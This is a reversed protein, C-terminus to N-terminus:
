PEFPDARVSGCGEELCATAQQFCEAHYPTRCRRCRVWAGSGSPTGGCLGCTVPGAEPLPEPAPVPESDGSGQTPVPDAPAPLATGKAASGVRHALAATTKLARVLLQTTPELGHLVLTLYGGRVVVEVQKANAERRVDTLELLSSELVRTALVPDDARATLVGQVRLTTPYPVEPVHALDPPTEAVDWGLYLRSTDDPDPLRVQVEARGGAGKHVDYLRLTLTLGDVEARLEPNDFRSAPSARGEIAQAVEALLTSWRGHARGRTLLRVAYGGAGLAAAGLVVWEIM